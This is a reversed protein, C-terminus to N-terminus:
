KASNHGFQEFFTSIINAFKDRDHAVSRRRLAKFDAGLPLGTKGTSELSAALRQGTKPSGQPFAELLRAAGMAENDKTVSFRVGPVSGPHQFDGAFIGLGNNGSGTPHSPPMKFPIATGLKRDIEEALFPDRKKIPRRQRVERVAVSNVGQPNRATKIPSFIAM